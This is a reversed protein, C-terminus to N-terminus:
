FISNGSSDRGDDVNRDQKQKFNNFSYRLSIGFNPSYKATYKNYSYFLPATTKSTSNQGKFIDQANLTVELKDGFFKKGASVGAFTRSSSYFRDDTVKPTYSAYVSFNVDYWLKLSLYDNM